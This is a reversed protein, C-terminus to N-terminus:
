ANKNAFYEELMQIFVETDELAAYLIQMQIEGEEESFMIDKEMVMGLDILCKVEIAFKISECDFFRFVHHKYDAPLPIYPNFDNNKYGDFGKERMVHFFDHALNKAKHQAIKLRELYDREKLFEDNKLEKVHMNVHRLFHDMQEFSMERFMVKPKNFYEELIAIFVGADQVAWGFQNMQDEADEVSLVINKAPILCLDITMKLKCGVRFSTADFHRFEHHKIDDPLSVDYSFDATEYGRFQKTRMVHIIDHSVDLALKQAQKLKRLYDSGKTFCGQRFENAHIEIHRLFHDMQELSMKNEAM